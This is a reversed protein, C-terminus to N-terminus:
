LLAKKCTEAIEPAPDANAVAVVLKWAEVKWTAGLNCSGWICTKITSLKKPKTGRFVFYVCWIPWVKWLQQICIKQIIEQANFNLEVLSVYTYINIHLYIRLTDLDLNPSSFDRSFNHNRKTNISNPIRSLIFFTLKKKNQLIKNPHLLLNRQLLNSICFSGCQYWISPWEQMVHPLVLRVNDTGTQKPVQTLVLQFVAKSGMIDPGSKYSLRLLYGFVLLLRTHFFCSFSFYFGM